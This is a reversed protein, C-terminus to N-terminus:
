EGYRMIQKGLKLHDEERSWRATNIAWKTVYESDSYKGFGRTQSTQVGNWRQVWSGPIQVPKRSRDDMRSGEEYIKDQLQQQHLEHHHITISFSTVPGTRTLLSHFHIFISVHEMRDCPILMWDPLSLYKVQKDIKLTLLFVFHFMVISNECVRLHKSLDVSLNIFLLCNTRSVKHWNPLSSLSNKPQGPNGYVKKKQTPSRFDLAELLIGDFPM